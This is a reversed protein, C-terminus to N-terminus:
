RLLIISCFNSSSNLCFNSDMDLIFEGEGGEYVAKDGVGPGQGELLDKPDRPRQDLDGKWFGAGVSLCIGKYGLVGGVEGLFDKLCEAAQEWKRWM